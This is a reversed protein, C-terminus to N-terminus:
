RWQPFLIRAKPAVPVTIEYGAGDLIVLGRVEKPPPSGSGRSPVVPLVIKGDRCSVGANEVVYDELPYPFFDAVEGARPGSLAIEIRWAGGTWEGRGTGATLGSESLPRPFRPAFAKVLSRGRRLSDAAPPFVARVATEGVICSERCAMWELVAAAEWRGAAQYSPSPTIDCLLLVSNSHGYSVLGEEVSKEPVPHLLPGAAFGPGLTWRVTPALGADGPNMWYLHWGPELEIHFGMKVPGPGGADLVLLEVSRLPSFSRSEQSNPNAAPFSRRDSAPQDSPSFGSLCAVVVAHFLFAAPFAWLKSM